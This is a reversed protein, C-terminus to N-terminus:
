TATPRLVHSRRSQECIHALWGVMRGVAFLFAMGDDSIDFIDAALALGVDLNPPAVGADTAASQLQDYQSLIQHDDTLETVARRVWRYRPDGHEYLPHGFGPISNASTLRRAVWSQPDLDSQALDHIMQRVRNFHRGHRDGSFTALSATLADFLGAGASASIRGTFTSANLGHDAVIMLIKDIIELLPSPPRRSSGNPTQEQRPGREYRHIFQALYTSPECPQNPRPSPSLRRITDAILHSWVSRCQTHDESSRGADLTMKRLTTIPPTQAPAIDMTDTTAADIEWTQRKGSWILSAVESFSWDNRLIGSLPVGRYRPGRASISGVDTELSSQGWYLADGASPGDGSAADSRRRLRDLDAKRYQRRRQDGETEISELRGRSVYAYLTSKSVDLYDAAQDADLYDM